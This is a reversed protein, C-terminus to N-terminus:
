EGKRLAVVCEIQFTQPFLDVPQIADVQWGAGVLEALDRALSEPNCSVYVLRNAKMETLLSLADPRLGSRPPDVIILDAGTVGLASTELVEGVDGCLFEANEISNM